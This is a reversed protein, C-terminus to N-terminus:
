GEDVQASSGAHCVGGRPHREPVPQEDREGHEDGQVQGEQYLVQVLWRLLLADAPLPVAEEDM